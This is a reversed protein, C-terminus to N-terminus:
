LVSRVDSLAIDKGGVTLVCGDATPRAATVTGRVTSGNADAFTVARGILAAGTALQQLHESQTLLTTLQELREVSTFQATQALFSQPDAPSMPNQYRLQAVLLKLFADRDLQNSPARDTAATAAAGTLNATANVSAITM